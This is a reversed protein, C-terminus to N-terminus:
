RRTPPNGGAAGVAGAAGLEAAGVEAEGVAGVEDVEGAAGVEGVEGVVEVFCHPMPPYSMGQLRVKGPECERIGDDASRQIASLRSPEEQLHM